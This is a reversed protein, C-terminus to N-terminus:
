PLSQEFEAALRELRDRDRSGIVRAPTGAVVHFEGVSESVLSLAGVGAGRGLAVGPLLVSGCGVIAHEAVNVEAEEVLKFRAPITPNTLHGTTYDDNTSFISVRSSINAYDAIVIGATGFLHCAAGLHVNDGIRVTGPGATIVSFCDIRVHSGLEIREVGFLQVTPHIRVDQGLADLGLAELQARSLSHVDAGGGDRRGGEESV